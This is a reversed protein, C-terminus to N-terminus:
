FEKLRVPVFPVKVVKKGDQTLVNMGNVRSRKFRLGNWNTTLDKNTQWKEFM